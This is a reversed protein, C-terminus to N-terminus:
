IAQFERVHRFTVRSSWQYLLKANNGAAFYEHETSRSIEGREQM